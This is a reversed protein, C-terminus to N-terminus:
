ASSPMRSRTRDRPSPSTYLLCTFVAIFVTLMVMGVATSILLGFVRFVNLLWSTDYARRMLIYPYVLTSGGFLGWVLGPHLMPLLMGITAFLYFFSQMHLAVIVHDFIYIRRIWFHLITLALVYLPLMLFSFRPAWKQIANFLEASSIEQSSLKGLANLLEM